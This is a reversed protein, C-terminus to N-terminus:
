SRLIRTRYMVLMQHFSVLYSSDCLQSVSILNLTLNPIHYVNPLCFYPTVVSGIGTPMHTSDATVISVSSKHSLSVFSSLNPSMHHSAGSDLVWVSTTMGASSSSSLGIHSSASMTHPQAFFKQFQELMM